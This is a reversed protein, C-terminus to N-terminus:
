SFTSSFAGLYNELVDLKQLSQCTGISPPISGELNNESLFLEALQTLNGISSPIKGSLKNGWLRLGQMKQFKEFSTPIMGTLLTDEMGLIILNILNQLAIPITGSIKNGGLYLGTFQTSLTGISSPLVGEFRNVVFALTNMKSCNRLSTLFDLDKGLKNYSLDLFRLDQLYGLNTPVSGM